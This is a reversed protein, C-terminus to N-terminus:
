SNCQHISALSLSSPNRDVSRQRNLLPSSFQEHSTGYVMDLFRTAILNTSMDDRNRVQCYFQFPHIEHARKANGNYGPVLYKIPADTVNSLSSSMSASIGPLNSQHLEFLERLLGDLKPYTFFDRTIVSPLPCNPLGFNCAPSVCLGLGFYSRIRDNHTMIAEASQMSAISIRHHASLLIYATDDHLARMSEHISILRDRRPDRLEIAAARFRQSHTPFEDTFYGAFLSLGSAPPRPTNNFSDHLYTRFEMSLKLQECVKAQQDRLFSCPAEFAEVLDVVGIELKSCEISHILIERQESYRTHHPDRLIEIAELGISDAISKFASRAIGNVASLWETASRIYSNMVDVIFDFTDLLRFVPGHCRDCFKSTLSEDTTFCRIRWKFLTVLLDHANPRVIDIDLRSKGLFGRGCIVVTYFRTFNMLISRVISVKLKSSTFNAFSISQDNKLDASFADPDNILKFLSECAFRLPLIETSYEIVQRFADGLLM